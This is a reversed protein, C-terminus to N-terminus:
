MTWNWLRMVTNMSQAIWNKVNLRPARRMVPREAVSKSKLLSIVACGLLGWSAHCRPKADRSLLGRGARPASRQDNELYFAAGMHASLRPPPRPNTTPTPASRPHASSGTGARAGYVAAGREDEVGHDGGGPTM